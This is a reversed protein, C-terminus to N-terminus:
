SHATLLLLRHIIIIIIIIIIIVYNIYRVFKLSSSDSIFVINQDKYLETYLIRGSSTGVSSSAAIVDCAPESMVSVNSLSRRSHGTSRSRV